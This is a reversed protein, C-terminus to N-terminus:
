RSARRLGSLRFATTWQKFSFSCDHLNTRKLVANDDNAHVLLSSWPRSDDDRVGGLLLRDLPLDDGDAVALDEFIAGHPLEVDLRTVGDQEAFVGAGFDLDVAFVTEDQAFVVDQAHDLFLGRARLCM